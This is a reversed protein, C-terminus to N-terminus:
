FDSDAVNLVLGTEVGAAGAAVSASGTSSLVPVVDDVDQTKITLTQTNSRNAADTATITLTYTNPTVEYDLASKLTIVGRNPDIFFLKGGGVVDPNGGTIAYTM